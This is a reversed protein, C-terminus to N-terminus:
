HSSATQRVAIMAYSPFAGNREDYHRLLRIRFGIYRIRLHAAMEAQFRSRDKLAVESKRPRQM